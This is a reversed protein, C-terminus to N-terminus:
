NIMARLYDPKEVRIRGRALNVAGADRFQGLIRSIVERASGLETAIGEHTAYVSSVRGRSQELLWQALRHDVRSFAVEEIVQLSELLRDYLTNIIFDKWEPLDAMMSQYVATPIQFMRVDEEVEVNVPFIEGRIHCAVSILCTEGPGTRYLSIERGTASLKYVRLVGSLVLPMFMCENNQRMLIEGAPRESVRGRQFIVELVSDPLRTLVPFLELVERSIQDDKPM